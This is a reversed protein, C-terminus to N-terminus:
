ASALELQDPDETSCLGPPRPMDLYAVLAESMVDGMPVGREISADRLAARIEPLLYM